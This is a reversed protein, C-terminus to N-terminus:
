RKMQLVGLIITALLALISIILTISAIPEKQVWYMKHIWKLRRTNRKDTIVNLTYGDPLVIQYRSDDTYSEDYKSLTILAYKARHKIGQLSLEKQKEDSLKPLLIYDKSFSFEVDIPAGVRQKGSSGIIIHKTVLKGKFVM